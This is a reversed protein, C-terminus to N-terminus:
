RRRTAPSSRRCAISSIGPRPSSRRLLSLRPTATATARSAADDVRLVWRSVFTTHDSYFGHERSEEVRVDGCRDGVVFTSGDLVSVTGDPM